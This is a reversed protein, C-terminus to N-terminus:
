EAASIMAALEAFKNDIYTKTDAVYELMLGAGADSLVTTNPKNTRLAAYAALEEATLPTEVPDLLIAYVQGGAVIAARWASQALEPTNVDVGFRVMLNPTGHTGIGSSYKGDALDANSRAPLFSCLLEGHVHVTNNTGTYVVYCGPAWTTDNERAVIEDGTFALAQVRQVYVGRAFDVEDCVWQQGTEDTYNGGATVPIGPLGNPVLAVISGGGMVSVTIVGGSGVNVLEVPADPTPTGGQTTKGYVHLGRLPADAADSVHVAEGSAACVIVPGPVAAAVAAVAEAAAKVSQAAAEEADTQQETAMHLLEMIRADTEPTPTAPSGSNCLISAECPIVAPTSTYLEGAFVGVHVQTIRLLAPVAVTSGTFNKDTHKVQGDQVYVFRATRTPRASWEADFAFELSYDSNGCVIVPAGEVTPRKDAINIKIVM